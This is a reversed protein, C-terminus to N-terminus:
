SKLPGAARMKTEQLGSGSTLLQVLRSFDISVPESAIHLLVLAWSLVRGAMGVLIGLLHIFGGEVRCVLGPALEMGDFSVM